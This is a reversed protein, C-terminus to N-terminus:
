VVKKKKREKNRPNGKEKKKKKLNQLDVLQIDAIEQSKFTILFEILFLLGPIKSELLNESM